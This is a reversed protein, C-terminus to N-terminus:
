EEWSMKYVAGAFDDAIYINGEADEEFEAPRGIVEGMEDGKKLFGTIFDKESINGASDWHLSVVKYDDKKSRNWSGHM